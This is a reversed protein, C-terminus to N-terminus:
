SKQKMIKLCPLSESRDKIERDSCINRVIARKSTFEVYNINPFAENKYTKIIAKEYKENFAEIKKYLSAYKNFLLNFKNNEKKDKKTKRRTYRDNLIKYSDIIELHDNGCSPCDELFLAKVHNTDPDVFQQCSYLNGCCHIKSM